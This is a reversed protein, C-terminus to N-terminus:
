LLSEDAHHEPADGVLEKGKLLDAHRLGNAPQDHSGSTKHEDGARGAGALRGAEGAHDIEDVLIVVPVDDGDFVRNLIEVCMLLAGDILALDADVHRVKGLSDTSSIPTSECAMRGRLGSPRVAAKSIITTVGAM